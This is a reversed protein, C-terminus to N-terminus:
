KTTSEELMDLMAEDMMRLSKHTNESLTKHYENGDLDQIISDSLKKFRQSYGNATVVYYNKDLEITMDPYEKTGDEIGKELLENAGASSHNEDLDSRLAGNLRHSNYIAVSSQDFSLFSQDLNKSLSYNLEWSSEILDNPSLGEENIQAHQRSNFYYTTSFGIVILLLASLVINLVKRRESRKVKRSIEEIMNSDEKLLDDLPVEYYESITVLTELDPYTRGVEWSSVTQRSVHLIEGLEKQSLSAGLRKEKLRDGIKM